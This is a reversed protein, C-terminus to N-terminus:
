KIASIEITKEEEFYQGAALGRVLIKVNGIDDTAFFSVTAKGNKNTRVEPNWYLTSRFDPKRRTGAPREGPAQFPFVDNTGDITTMPREANRAGNGNKTKVIVIGHKAVAQFRSLEVPDHIIKVTIIDAPKLSLFASNHRTMLGDIIYLPSSKPQLYADSFVVRVLERKENKRYYLRPIIELILEPMDPFVRYEQVNITTGTNRMSSELSTDFDPAAIVAKAKGFFNFSGDIATKNAMFRAYKDPSTAPNWPNARFALSDHAWRIKVRELQKGDSEVFYYMEDKGDLTIFGLDLRGNKRSNIEFAFGNKTMYGSFLSSDPIPQNTDAFYAYGSVNVFQPPAKLMPESAAMIRPWSINGVQTALYNDVARHWGPATTASYLTAMDSPVNLDAPFVTRPRDFLNENIATVTFVGEIPKGDADTLSIESTISENAIFNSKTVQIGCKLPSPSPLYFHRTSLMSGDPAIISLLALGGPLDKTPFKVDMTERRLPKFAGTYYLAGNVTLAAVLEGDRWKSRAPLSISATLFANDASPTLQLACGDEEVVPLPTYEGNAAAVYSDGKQPTFVFSGTGFQDLTVVGVDRGETNITFERTVSDTAVIVVRNRVGQVLHGGEATIVPAISKYDTQISNGKVVKIEKRFYFSESFQKMYENYAVILYNGESMSSPLVVQNGGVGNKVPVLQRHVTQGRSDIVAIKLIQYGAVYHGDETVFFASLFVTDGPVYKDQPIVVFTKTSTLKSQWQKYERSVQDALGSTVQSYGSISLLSLFLITLYRKM